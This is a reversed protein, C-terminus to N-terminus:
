KYRNRLYNEYAIYAMVPSSLVIVPSGVGAALGVAGYKITNTLINYPVTLPDKEKLSYRVGDYVGYCSGIGTYTCIGGIYARYLFSPKEKNIINEKSSSNSRVKTSNLRKLIADDIKRTCNRSLLNGAFNTFCFSLIIISIKNLIYGLCIKYNVFIINCGM